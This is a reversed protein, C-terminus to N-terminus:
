YPRHDRGVGKLKPDVNARQVSADHGAIRARDGAGPLLRSPGTPTFANRQRHQHSRGRREVLEDHLMRIVEKGTSWFVPQDVRVIQENQDVVQFAGCEFEREMVAIREAVDIRKLHEIEQLILADQVVGAVGPVPRGFRIRGFLDAQAGGRSGVDDDDVGAIPCPRAHDALDIGEGRWHQDVSVRNIDVFPLLVVDLSEIPFLLLGVDMWNLDVVVCVGSQRHPHLHDLLERVPVRRRGLMMTLHQDARDHRLELLDLQVRVLVDSPALHMEGLLLHVGAGVPERQRGIDAAAHALRLQLPASVPRALASCFM